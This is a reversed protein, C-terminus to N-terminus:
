GIPAAALEEAGDAARELFEVDGEEVNMNSMDIEIPRWKEILDDMKGNMATVGDTLVPMLGAMKRAENLQDTAVAMQENFKDQASNMERNFLL